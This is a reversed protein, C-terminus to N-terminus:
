LEGAQGRKKQRADFIYNAWREVKGPDKTGYRVRGLAILQELTRARGQEKLREAQALQAETPKITEALEGDVNEITRAESDFPNGCTSCVEANYKSAAFCKTCMRPAPRKSEKAKADAGTTLSWERELDPKGHRACNGVHDLITAIKGPVFRLARGVQQLYLSESMTPRLLIAAEIAPLDYGEGLLECNMLVRIHGTEFDRNIQNRLGRETNGDFHCAAIGEKRFQAAVMAAHEISVAFGVARAGNCHTRYHAVVDGVIKSDTVRQTMQRRNYEGAVVQVGSMDVSAPEFLRYPSLYDNDILWRMSPGKVMADFYKGLGRGDLRKPTASLGLIHADKCWAMLDAWMQSAAHHCEDVVLLDPPTLRELRRIATQISVIQARAKPKPDYDSSIVGYDIGEADFARCVQNVLERRHVVFWATKGKKVATHVVTSTMATKGGGTPLQNLVRKRGARFHARTEGVMDVQYPRLEL